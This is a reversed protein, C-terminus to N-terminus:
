GELDATFGIPRRKPKKVTTLARIARNVAQFQKRTDEDLRWLSRELVALKRALDTNSAILQRLRSFARVVYISMEIAQDSSLVTAAMIAGHETFALPLYKRYQGRGPELTVSQSRLSLWEEATLQILFDPPFRRPNRRVAQNLAKTAVGYLAALNSDLLVRQGRIIRISRVIDPDPPAPPKAMPRPHKGCSPWALSSDGGNTRNRQTEALGGAM